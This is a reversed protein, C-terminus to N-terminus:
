IILISGSHQHHLRPPRQLRGLRLRGRPPRGRDGATQEDGGAPVEHEDEAVPPAEVGEAARQDGQNISRFKNTKVLSPLFSPFTKNLSASLM